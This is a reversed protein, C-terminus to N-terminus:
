DDGGFAAAAAQQERLAAHAEALSVPQWSIEDGPRLQAVIPLDAAIVHGFVPYGGITQADALLIIPCGDPPVQVTGPFVPISRLSGARGEAGGGHAAALPEGELRVGMRNSRSSARFSQGWAAEAFWEAHEGPVVRVMRPRRASDLQAPIVGPSRPDDGGEGVSLRDGARLPRGAFGGLAAPVFTSRSGLVAPVSIGGAVALYGRCGATVHGLTIETGAAVHIPQGSPLGPFDAGALAVTAAQEFRLSPGLLTCEIAAAGLANGVLANAVALSVRDAAGSLPVGSARFGPRGLDQITTFLGPQLMTIAGATAELDSPELERVGEAAAQGLAAIEAASAERFRVRDGVALM